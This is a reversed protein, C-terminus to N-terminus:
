NLLWKFNNYYSNKDKNNKELWSDIERYKIDMTKSDLKKKKNNNNNILIIVIQEVEIYRFIRNRGFFWWFVTLISKLIM